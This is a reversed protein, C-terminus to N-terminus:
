GYSMLRRKLQLKSVAPGPVRQISMPASSIAGLKFLEDYEYAPFFHDILIFRLVSTKKSPSPYFDELEDYSFVTRDATQGVLEKISSVKSFGEVVGLTQIKSMSEITSGQSVYFLLVDGCRIDKIKSNSVYAKRISNSHSSRVPNSSNDWEMFLPLKALGYLEPFLSSHFKPKIPLTFVRDPSVYFNPFNKTVHQAQFGLEPVLIERSLSKVMIFEGRANSSKKEFGFTELLAILSAQKDFVTLYVEEFGNAKAYWLSKKLLLEGVKNGRMKESVKFTSLKLIRSSDTRYDTEHPKEPKYIILAGIQSGYNIVWTERQSRKSKALWNDFGSYDARLSDFIPDNEDLEHLKRDEIPPLEIYNSGFTTEAWAIAEDISLVRSGLGLDNAKRLIKLDDTVLLDAADKNVAWLLLADNAHKSHSPVSYFECADTIEKDYNLGLDPYKKLCSISRTRRQLDSDNLIDRDNAVCKYLTFHGSSQFRYLASAEERGVLTDELTILVNTDVLVSINTM